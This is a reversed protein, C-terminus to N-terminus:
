THCCRLPNIGPLVLVNELPMPEAAPLTAGYASLFLMLVMFFMILFLLVIGITSYVKWFLKPKALREILKMGRRTRWMFFPGWFSMNHRSLQEKYRKSLRHAIFLYLIIIGLVILIGNM